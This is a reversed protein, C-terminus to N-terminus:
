HYPSWRSRCTSVCEKGVRREESRLANELAVLNTDQQAVGLRRHALVPAEAEFDLRLILGHHQLCIPLACTQVGTVLACRTHRRRSSFFFVFYCLIDVAYVCIVFLRVFSCMMICLEILM